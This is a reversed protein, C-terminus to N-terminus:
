NTHKKNGYRPGRKLGDTKEKGELRLVDAWAHCSRPRILAARVVRFRGPPARVPRLPARNTRERRCCVPKKVLSQSKREDLLDTLTRSGRRRTAGPTGIGPGIPVSFSVMTSHGVIRQEAYEELTILQKRMMLLDRHPPGRLRPAHPARELVSSPVTSSLCAVLLCGDAGRLEVIYSVALRGFVYELPPM